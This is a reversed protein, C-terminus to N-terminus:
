EAQVTGASVPTEDDGINDTNGYGLQGDTGEGWCRVKGDNGLACSHTDGSALEVIPSGLQLDAVTSPHENDGLNNTNGSGLIGNIGQGWCRVAGAALRVCTHYLGTALEYAPAGLDIVPVTDPLEDDGINATGSLGLPGGAGRGWCRVDGNALLVCTHAFPSPSVAVATGAIAVSGASVPLEDDGVDNMNGYGLQGFHSRGWCVLQGSKLIACTTAGGSAIDTALGGIQVDGASAPTNTIGVTATNGYGLRGYTGYGWCRVAGSSLLACTHAFGATIKTVPSGVDIDGAVLPLEDDGINDNNGYGLQGVSNDGWCRVKGSSLLACTHMGGVALQVVTGGVSVNGASIPAEDDGINLTNGYGLQGSSNSGWCRVGGTSTRMCSHSGGAVIMRGLQCQGNSCQAGGLCPKQPGCGVPCMANSGDCSLLSCSGPLGKLVFNDTPCAAVTGDCLESVDCAGARVRCIAGAAAPMCGPAAPEGNCGGARCSSLQTVCENDPDAGQPVSTCLGDTGQTKSAACAQCEGACASDCCVGDVCHGSTCEAEPEGSGDSGCSAGDSKKPLCAGQECYSGLGCNQDDVCNMGGGGSSQTSSGGAGGAGAIGTSVGGTGGAMSSTQGSNGASGGNSSTAGSDVQLDDGGSILVCGSGAAIWGLFGLRWDLKMAPM